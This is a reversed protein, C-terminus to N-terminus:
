VFSCIQWRHATGVYLLESGWIGSKHQAPQLDFGVLYKKYETEMYGSKKIM